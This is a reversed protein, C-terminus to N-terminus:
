KRRCDKCKVYYGMRKGKAPKSGYSVCVKDLKRYTYGENNNTRNSTYLPEGCSVCMNNLKRYTYREKNNM